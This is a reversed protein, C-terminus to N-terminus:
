HATDPICRNFDLGSGLELVVEVRGWLSHLNVADNGLGIVPRYGFFLCFFKKTPLPLVLQHSCLNFDPNVNIRVADVMDKLRKFAHPLEDVFEFSLLASEIEVFLYSILLNLDADSLCFFEELFLLGWSINPGKGKM